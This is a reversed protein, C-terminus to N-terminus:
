AAASSFYHAVVYNAGDRSVYMPPEMEFHEGEIIYSLSVIENNLPLRVEKLSGIASAREVKQLNPLYVLENDEILLEGIGLSDFFASIADVCRALEIASGLLEVRDEVLSIAIGWEGSYTSSQIKIGVGESAGSMDSCSYRVVKSSESELVRVANSFLKSTM